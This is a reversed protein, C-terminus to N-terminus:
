SVLLRECGEYTGYDPNDQAETKAFEVAGLAAFYHANEPVVILEDPSRDAPLEM